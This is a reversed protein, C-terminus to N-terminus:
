GQSSPCHTLSRSALVHLYICTYMYMYINARTYVHGDTLALSHTHTHTHTVTHTLSHIHTNTFTHDHTLAHSGAHLECSMSNTRLRHYQYDNGEMAYVVDDESVRMPSSDKAWQSQQGPQKENILPATTYVNTVCWTLM